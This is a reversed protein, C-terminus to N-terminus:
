RRHLEDKSVEGLVLGDTTGAIHVHFMESTGAMYVAAKELQTALSQYGRYESGTGRYQFNPMSSPDRLQGTPLVERWINPLAEEIAAVEQHSPGDIVLLVHAQYGNGSARDILRADCVIVDGYVLKLRRIFDGSARHMHLFRTRHDAAGNLSGEVEARVLHGAPHARAVKAFFAKTQRLRVRHHDSHKQQVRGANASRQQVRIADGFEEFLSVWAPHGFQWFQGMQASMQDLGVRVFARCATGISPEFALDCYDSRTLGILVPLMNALSFALKKTAIGKSTRRFFLRQDTSKTCNGVFDILSLLQEAQLEGERLNEPTISPASARENMELAHRRQWGTRPIAFPQLPNHALRESLAIRMPQKSPSVRPALPMLAYHPLAPLVAQWSPLFDTM